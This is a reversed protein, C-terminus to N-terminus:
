ALHWGGSTTDAMIESWIAESKQGRTKALYRENSFKRSDFASAFAAFLMSVGFKFM